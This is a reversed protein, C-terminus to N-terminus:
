DRSRPNVSLEWSGFGGFGHAGYLDVNSNGYRNGDQGRPACLFSSGWADWLCVWVQLAWGTTSMGRQGGGM